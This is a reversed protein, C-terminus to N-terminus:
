SNWPTEKSKSITDAAARTHLLDSTHARIGYILIPQYETWHQTFNRHPLPNSPSTKQVGRGDLQMFHQNPEGLAHDASPFVPQFRDLRDASNLLSSRYRVVSCAATLESVPTLSADM